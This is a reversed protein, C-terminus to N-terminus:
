SWWLSMIVFVMKLFFDNLQSSFSNGRNCGDFRCSSIFGSVVKLRSGDAQEISFSYLSGGGEEQEYLKTM